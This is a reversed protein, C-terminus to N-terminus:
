KLIVINSTDDVYGYLRYLGDRIEVPIQYKRLVEEVARREEDHDVRIEYWETADHGGVDFHYYWECDWRGITDSSLNKGRWYPRARSELIGLRLERWKTDNMVSSLKQSRV